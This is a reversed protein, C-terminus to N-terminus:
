IEGRVELVSTGANVCVAENQTRTGESGDVIRDCDLTAVVCPRQSEETWEGALIRHLVRRGAAEADKGDQIEKMVLAVMARAKIAGIDSGEMFVACEHVLHEDAEEDTCNPNEALWAGFGETVEYKFVGGFDQQSAIWLANEMDRCRHAFGSEMITSVAGDFGIGFKEGDNWKSQFGTALFGAHALLELEADSCKPEAIVATYRNM